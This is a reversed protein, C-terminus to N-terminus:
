NLPTPSPPAPLCASPLLSPNFTSSVTESTDFHPHQILSHFCKANIQTKSNEMERGTDETQRCKHNSASRHWNTTLNICVFLVACSLCSSNRVSIKVLNTSLLWKVLGLESLCGIDTHQQWCKRHINIEYSQKQKNAAKLFCNGCCVYVCVNNQTPPM